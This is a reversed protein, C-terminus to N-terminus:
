DLEEKLSKLFINSLKALIKDDDIEEIVTENNEKIEEVIKINELDPEEDKDVPALLFYKKGEYNQIKIVTYEEENDLTITDYLEIEKM